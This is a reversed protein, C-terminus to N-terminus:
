RWHDVKPVIGPVGIERNAPQIGSLFYAGVLVSNLLIASGPPGCPVAASIQRVKFAGFCRLMDGKMEGVTKRLLDEQSQFGVQLNKGGLLSVGFAAFAHLSPDVRPM